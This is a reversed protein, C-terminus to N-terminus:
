QAPQPCFAGSSQSTFSNGSRFAPLVAPGRMNVKMDMFPWLFSGEITKSIKRRTEPEDAPCRPARSIEPQSKQLSRNLLLCSVRTRRLETLLPSLLTAMSVLRHPCEKPKSPLNAAPLSIGVPCPIQVAVEYPYFSEAFLCAPLCATLRFRLRFSLSLHESGSYM